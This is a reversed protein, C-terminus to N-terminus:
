IDKRDQLGTVRECSASYHQENCYACRIRM